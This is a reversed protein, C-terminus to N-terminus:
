LWEKIKNKLKRVKVWFMNYKTPIHALFGNHDKGDYFLSPARVVIFITKNKTLIMSQWANMLRNNIVKFEDHKSDHAEVKGLWLKGIKIQM